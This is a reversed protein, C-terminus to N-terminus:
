ELQIFKEKESLKPQRIANQMKNEVRKKIQVYYPKNSIHKQSIDKM